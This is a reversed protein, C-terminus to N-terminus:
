FRREERNDFIVADAYDYCQLSPDWHSHTGCLMADVFAFGISNRHRVEVTVVLYAM